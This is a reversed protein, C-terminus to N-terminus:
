SIRGRQQLVFGSIIKPSSVNVGLPLIGIGGWSDDIAYFPVSANWIYTTPPIRIACVTTLNTTVTAVLAYENNIRSMLYNLIVRGSWTTENIKAGTYFSYTVTTLYHILKNEPIHVNRLLGNNYDVFHYYKEEYDLLDDFVTYINQRDMIVYLTQVCRYTLNFVDNGDPSVDDLSFLKPRDTYCPCNQLPIKKITSTSSVIKLLYCSQSQAGHDAASTYMGYLVDLNDNPNYYDLIRLSIYQYSNDKPTYIFYGYQGYYVLSGNSLKFPYYGTYVDIIRFDRLDVGYYTNDEFQVYLTNNGQFLNLTMTSSNYALSISKALVVQLNANIYYLGLQTVVSNFTPAVFFTDNIKKHSNYNIFPLHFDSGTNKNNISIPTVTLNGDEDYKFRAVVASNNFSELSEYLDPNSSPIKALLNQTKLDYLYYASTNTKFDPSFLFFTNNAILYQDQTSGQYDLPLNYAFKNTRTDFVSYLM